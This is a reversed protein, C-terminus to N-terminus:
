WPLWGKKASPSPSPAPSTRPPPTPRGQSSLPESWGLLPVMPAPRRPVFLWGISGVLVLILGIALLKLDTPLGRWSFRSQPPLPVQPTAMTALAPVGRALPNAVPATLAAERRVGCHCEDVRNPVRRGCQPCQWTVSAVTRDHQAAGRRDLPATVSARPVSVVM